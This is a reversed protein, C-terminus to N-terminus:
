EKFSEAVIKDIHEDTEKKEEPTIFIKQIDLSGTLKQELMDKPLVAKLLDLKQQTTGQTLVEDVTAVGIKEWIYENANERKVKEAKVRNAAEAGRTAIEKREAPSKKALNGKELNALQNPSMNRKAM